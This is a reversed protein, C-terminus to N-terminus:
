IDLDNLNFSCEDKVTVSFYKLDDVTSDPSIKKGILRKPTGLRFTIAAKHAVPIAKKKTVALLSNLYGIFAWTNKHQHKDSSDSGSKLEITLCCKKDAIKGVVVRDTVKHIGKVSSSLVPSVGKVEDHDLTFSFCTRIGKITVKKLTGKKKANKKEVIQRNTRFQPLIVTNLTDLAENM